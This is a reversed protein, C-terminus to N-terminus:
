RGGHLLPFAWGAAYGAGWTGFYLSAAGTVLHLFNDADSAKFYADWIGQYGNVVKSYQDSGPSLGLNKAVNEGLM